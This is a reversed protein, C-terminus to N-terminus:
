NRFNSESKNRHLISGSEIGLESDRGLGCECCDSLSLLIVLTQFIELNERRVYDLKDILHIGHQNVGLYVEGDFEQAFFTQGPMKMSLDFFTSRRWM